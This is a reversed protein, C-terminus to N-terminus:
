RKKKIPRRLFGHKPAPLLSKFVKPARRVLKNMRRSVSKVFDADGHDVLLAVTLLRAEVRPNNKGLDRAADLVQDLQERRASDSLFERQAWLLALRKYLTVEGTESRLKGLLQEAPRKLFGSRFSDSTALLVVFDLLIEPVQDRMGETAQVLADRLIPAYALAKELGLDKVNEASHWAAQLLRGSLLKLFVKEIDGDPHTFVAEIVERNMERRQGFFYLAVESWIQDFYLATAQKEARSGDTDRQIHFAVFFELFSRHSFAVVDFFDLIASRRIEGLFKGLDESQWGFQTAYSSAFSDFDERPISLREKKYFEVYALESLFRKKTYYDFLVALGKTEDWRGLALDLFREYLETVSSPLEKHEEVLELLLTISLPNLPIRQEVQQLAKRVAEISDPNRVIKKILTLAQQFAFDLLEYSEFEAAVLRTSDAKRTAIVLPCHWQSAFDKSRDLVTQRKSEELEDLGDVLLAGVSITDSAVLDGFTSQLLPAAAEYSFLEAATVLIPLKPKVQSAGRKVSENYAQQNIDLAIKRLASSKGTGPDGYLLIRRGPKLLEELQSFRFRRRETRLKLTQDFTIPMSHNVVVPDVFCQSLPIQSRSFLHHRELKEDLTRMFNILEAEFFVQPHHATFMDVLWRLDRISVNNPVEHELRERANKSILGVLVVMVQNVPLRAYIRRMEAPHTEAQRIQSRIEDLTAKKSGKLLGGTRQAVDDVDGATKGKVDGRKVIVAIVDLSVSDERVIVLDKGFEEDGHTIEITYNPEVAQLLQKLHRHMDTEKYAALIQERQERPLREARQSLDSKVSPVKSGITPTM